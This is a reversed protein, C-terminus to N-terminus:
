KILKVKYNVNGDSLVRVLQLDQQTHCITFDEYWISYIDSQTLQTLQQTHLQEGIFAPATQVMVEACGATSSYGVLDSTATTDLGSSLEVYASTIRGSEYRYFRRTDEQTIPYNRLHVISLPTDYQMVAAPYITADLRNLLNFSFSVGSNLNRTYGDVSAIFGKTYGKELCLDAFYDIIFANRMWHFDIYNEIENEAAFAAYEESLKLMVTNNGLLQLDVADEDRAFESLQAVYQRSEEDLNPDWYAAQADDTSFFINDYQQYIPGLYIDRNEHEALLSFAEYLVPDVVIERNPNHNITYVNSYEQTQQDPTFLWYAKEAADSYISILDKQIATASAGSDAFYYQLTFDEACNVGDCLPEVEQWGSDVNLFDMLGVSIAVIGIGLFVCLLIIRLKRHEDSLFLERFVPREKKSFLSM